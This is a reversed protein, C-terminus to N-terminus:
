QEIREHNKSLYEPFWKVTRQTAEDLKRIVAKATFFIKSLLIDCDFKNFSAMTPIKQNREMKKKNFCHEAINPGM